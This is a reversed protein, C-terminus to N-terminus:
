QLGDIWRRVLAIGAPDLERTGLPPMRAFLDRTSM